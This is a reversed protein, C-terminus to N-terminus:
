TTVNNGRIVKIRTKTREDLNNYFDDVTIFDPCSEACGSNKGESCVNYYYCNEPKIM